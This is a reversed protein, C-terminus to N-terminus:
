SAEMYVKVAATNLNVFKIRKVDALAVGGNVVPLGDATYDTGNKSYLVKVYADTTESSSLKCVFRFADWEETNVATSTGSGAITLTQSLAPDPAFLQLRHGWKDQVLEGM